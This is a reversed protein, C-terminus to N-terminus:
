LRIVESGAFNNLFAGRNFVKYTLRLRGVNFKWDIEGGQGFFPLFLSFFSFFWDQVNLLRFPSPIQIWRPFLFTEQLRIRDVSQERWLIQSLVTFGSYKTHANIKTYNMRLPKRAFIFHACFMWLLGSFGCRNAATRFNWAYSLDTTM